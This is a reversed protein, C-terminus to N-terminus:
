SVRRRSRDRAGTDRRGPDGGREGLGLRGAGRGGARRRDLRHHRRDRGARGGGPRPLQGRDRRRAGVAELRAVEAAVDDRVVQALFVAFALLIAVGLSGILLLRTSSADALGLAIAIKSLPSEISYAADAAVLDRTLDEVGTRFAGATWPHVAGVDVPATWVYTRGTVDFAPAHAVADVGDVMLVAPSRRGTQYDGGGITMEGFPGRQDLAGFPVAPDIIGRGVITLRLDAAPRATAFDFERSPRRYCSRRAHGAMSARRRSAGRGADGTAGTCRGRRGVELRALRSGPAGQHHRRARAAHDLGGLHRDIAEDARTMIADHDTDTAAFRSIRVFPRDVGSGDLSRAVTADAAVLGIGSVIAILAAAAGVAAMSILATAGRRRFRALVLSVIPGAM